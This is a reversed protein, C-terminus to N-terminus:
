TRRFQEADLKRQEAQRYRLRAVPYLSGMVISMIGGGLLLPYYVHYPQGGSVAVIGAVLAVAGAAVFLAHATLMPVRGVGRPGLWGLLAGYIGALAGCGGGAIAGIWAAAESSWWESM